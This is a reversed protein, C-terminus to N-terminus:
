NSHVWKFLFDMIEKPPNLISKIMMKPREVTCRVRHHRFSMSYRRSEKLWEPGRWLQHIANRLKRVLFDLTGPSLSLTKDM